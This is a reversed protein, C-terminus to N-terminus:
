RYNKTIAAEDRTDYNKTGLDHYLHTRRKFSIIIQSRTKRRTLAGTQYKLIIRSLSKKENM